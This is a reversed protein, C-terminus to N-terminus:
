CVGYRAHQWRRNADAVFAQLEERPLGETGMVATHFGDYRDFDYTEIKGAAELERFLLSGPFPTAITFQLSEPFLDLALALTEEASERTEGPMGFVFTLHVKIGIKQTYRIVEIAKSVDLNKRMGDLLAQSASEVGYKVAFLGARRMTQLLTEDMLDARCMSAWPLDIRRRLLEECFDVVRQRRVNFTDDDIYFSKFGYARELWEIEDVVDRVSRTRYSNSGYMIQPWACFTCRFPCGRSTWLQVSPRELNGPEDHYALMPLFQRAPWPLADLDIIPPRRGTDFLDNGRRLLLGPITETTKGDRLARCLDRLSYEYEGRLVVDVEPHEQLFGPEYMLAHLGAFVLTGAFGRRRLETALALDSAISSTSVEFLVLDPSFAELTQLFPPELLHEAVADVLLTSFGDEVLIAAAHGLFFPFPVYEMDEREYHPWRSGARVGYFGPKHWPPNALFVKM